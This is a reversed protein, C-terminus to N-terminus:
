VLKRLAKPPLLWELQGGSGIGAADLDVDVLACGAKKMRVFPHPRNPACLMEIVTSLTPEHGVIMVTQERRKRLM